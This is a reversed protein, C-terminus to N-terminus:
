TFQVSAKNLRPGGAGTRAGAHPRGGEHGQGPVRRLRLLVLEEGAVLPVRRLVPEALFAVSKVQYGSLSRSVKAFAVASNAASNPRAPGGLRRPFSPQM